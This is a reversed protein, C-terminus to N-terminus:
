SILQKEQKNCIFCIFGTKPLLTVKSDLMNLTLGKTLTITRVLTDRAMVVGFCTTKTDYFAKRDDYLATSDIGFCSTKIDSLIARLIM